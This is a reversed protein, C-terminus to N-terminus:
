LRRDEVNSVSMNAHSVSFDSVKRYTYIGERNFKATILYFMHSKM